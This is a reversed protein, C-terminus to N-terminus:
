PRHNDRHRAISGFSERLDDIAPSFQFYRNIIRLVTDELSHVDQPLIENYLERAIDLFADLLQPDFQVERKDIMTAIAQDYTMAEKYPRQSTLADFVDAVAFVRATLPINEGRCGHPYGTGDWNEHHYLIVEIADELWRVSEIIQRGLFVHRKVDEYERQTLGGPKLLTKDRIGIKGVDHLFSGKILARVEDKELSVKEALRVAYITVRFNHESTGYDREAIASGLAKVMQLNSELLDHHMGILLGNVIVECDLEPPPAKESRGSPPPAKEATLQKKLEKLILVAAATIYEDAKVDPPRHSLLQSIEAAMVDSLQSDKIRQSLKEITKELM